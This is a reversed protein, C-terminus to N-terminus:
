QQYISIPKESNADVKTYVDVVTLEETQIVQNIKGGEVIYNGKKMVFRVKCKPLNINFQNNIVAKNSTRTGDNTNRYDLTLNLELEHYPGTPNKCFRLAPSFDVKGNEVSFLRFFGLNEKWAEMEGSRCVAGSRISLTPTKGVYEYYPNHSHGNLLVDIGYKDVFTTDIRDPRHQAMIQVKGTGYKKFFNEFFKGQLGSMPSKDPIDNVPDGLFDDAAIIRTDGYVFGYVRMGCMKNWQSAMVM